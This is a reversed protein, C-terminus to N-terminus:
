KTKIKIGNKWILEKGAHASEQEFAYSLVTSVLDSDPEVEEDPEMDWALVPEESSVEIVVEDESILSMFIELTESSVKEVLLVMGEDSLGSAMNLAEEKTLSAIYTDLVSADIDDILGDTETRM